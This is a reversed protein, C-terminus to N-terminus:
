RLCEFEFEGAPLGHMAFERADSQYVSAKGISQGIRGDGYAPSAQGATDDDHCYDAQRTAVLLVVSVTRFGRISVHYRTVVPRM